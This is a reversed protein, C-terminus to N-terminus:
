DVIFSILDFLLEEEEEVGDDLTDLYDAFDEVANGDNAPAESAEAGSSPHAMM